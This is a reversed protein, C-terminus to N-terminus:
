KSRSQTKYSFPLLLLQDLRGDKPKRLQKLGLQMDALKRYPIASATGFVYDFWPFISGFNSDTFGPQQFSAYSSFRPYNDFTTVGSGAKRAFSYQCSKV